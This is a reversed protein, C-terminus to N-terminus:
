RYVEDFPRTDRFCSEWVENVVKAAQVDDKCWPRNSVSITARRRVCDQYLQTIRFEKWKGRRFFEQTFRCEGSLASARIETCAAHRLDKDDVKFRLYDYAHVMEHAMSDELHKRDIMENACLLIGLGPAFGAAMRKNCRRCIVNNEHLDGGLKNVNERMFRVTPSYKFLFDRNSECKKCDKEENKIDQDLKYLRQGESTIKGQLLAFVNRWHTWSDDGPRYGTREEVTTPSETSPESGSM